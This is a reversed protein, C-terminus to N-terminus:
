VPSLFVHVEKAVSSCRVYFLVVLVSHASRVTSDFASITHEGFSDSGSTRHDKFVQGSNNETSITTRLQQRSAERRKVTEVEEKIVKTFDGNEEEKM